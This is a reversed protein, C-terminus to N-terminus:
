RKSVNKVKLIKGLKVVHYKINKKAGWEECGCRMVIKQLEVLIEPADKKYGNRILVADFKKGLIRVNWYPTIERYDETKEGSLIMDFWKKKITLHLINM